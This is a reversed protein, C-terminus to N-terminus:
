YRELGLNKKIQRFKTHLNSLDKEIQRKRRSKEEPSLDSPLEAAIKKLQSAYNQYAHIILLKYTEETVAQNKLELPLDTASSNTLVLGKIASRPRSAKKAFDENLPDEEWGCITFPDKADIIAKANLINTPANQPKYRYYCDLFSNPGVAKIAHCNQGVTRLFYENKKMPRTMYQPDLIYPSITGKENVMIEIVNHYGQYDDYTGILADDKSRDMAILTPAHEIRITKAAYGAEALMYALAEARLHCAGLGGSEYRLRFDTKFGVFMTDLDTKQVSQKLNAYCSLFRRSLCDEAVKQVVEEQEQWHKRLAPDFKQAVDPDFSRHWLDQEIKHERILNPCAVIPRLDSKTGVPTGICVTPASLDPIKLVPLDQPSLDRGFASWRLTCGLLLFVALNRLGIHRPEFIGMSKMIYRSARSTIMSTHLRIHNLTADLGAYTYVLEYLVTEGDNHMVVFAAQM